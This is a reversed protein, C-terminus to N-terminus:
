FTSLPSSSIGKGWIEEFHWAWEVADRGFNGICNIISFMEAENTNVFPFRQIVCRTFVTGPWSCFTNGAIGIPHFRVEMHAPMSLIFYIVVSTPAFLAVLIFAELPPWPM